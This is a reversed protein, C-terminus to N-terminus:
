VRQALVRIAMSNVIDFLGYGVYAAVVFLAANVLQTRTAGGIVADFAQGVAVASFSQSAAMGVATAVFVIPLWPYPRIHSLMWRVPSRRDYHREDAVTFERRIMPRGGPGAHALM